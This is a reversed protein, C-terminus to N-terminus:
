YGAPSKQRPSKQQPTEAHKQTHLQPLTSPRHNADEETRSLVEQHVTVIFYHPHRFPAAYPRHDRGASAGPNSLSFSLSLSSSSCSPEHIFTLDLFLRFTTHLAVLQDSSLFLAVCLQFTVPGVGRTHKKQKLKPCYTTHNTHVTHMHTEFVSFEEGCQKTEAYRPM